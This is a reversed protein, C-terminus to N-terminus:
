FRRSLEPVAPGPLVEEIAKLNSAGAHNAEVEWVVGRTLRQGIPAVVHMGPQLGLAHPARYDFPEPLPLPFLVAVRDFAGEERQEEVEFLPGPPLRARQRKLADLARRRATSDM